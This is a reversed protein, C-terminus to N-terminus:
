VSIVANNDQKLISIDRPQLVFHKNIRKISKIKNILAERRDGKIESGQLYLSDIKKIDGETL